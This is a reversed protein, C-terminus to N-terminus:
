LNSAGTRKAGKHLSAVRYFSSNATAQLSSSIQSSFCTSLKHSTRLITPVLYTSRLVLIVSPLWSQVNQPEGNALTGVHSVANPLYTHRLTTHVYQTCMVGNPEDWRTRQPEGQRASVGQLRVQSSCQHTYPLYMCVYRLYLYMPICLKAKRISGQPCAVLKGLENEPGNRALVWLPFPLM